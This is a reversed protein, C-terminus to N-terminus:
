DLLLSSLDELYSYVESLGSAHGYSWALQFAKEGRIHEHLGQERLADAKFIAVLRAEEEQWLKLQGRRWDRRIRAAEQRTKAADAKAKIEPPNEQPYPFINKYKSFDMEM